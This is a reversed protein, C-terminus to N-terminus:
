KIVFTYTCMTTETKRDVILQEEYQWDKDLVPSADYVVEGDSTRVTFREFLMAPNCSDHLVLDAESYAKLVFPRAVSWGGDLDHDEAFLWDVVYEKGTENVIRVAYDRQLLRCSSLTMACIGLFFLIYRKM